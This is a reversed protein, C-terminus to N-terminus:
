EAVLHLHLELEVDAIEVLFASEQADQEIAVTRRGLVADHVRPRVVEGGRQIESRIQRRQQRRWGSEGARGRPLKKILKCRSGWSPRPRRRKTAFPDERGALAEKAAPRDDGPAPELAFIWSGHKTQNRTHLGEDCPTRAPWMIVRIKLWSQGLGRLSVPHSQGRARHAQYCAEAWACRKRSLDAWLHVICRLGDNCAHRMKRRCQPQIPGRGTRHWRRM